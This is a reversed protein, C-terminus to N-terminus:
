GKAERRGLEWLKAWKLFVSYSASVSIIFGFYGDLFGRKVVYTELFKSAPKALLSFLSFEAKDDMLQVSGLSSYRNNREVQDAIGEFSYHLLDTKLHGVKGDANWYEHVSQNKWAGFRKNFLRVVRNPYWGGHRIWQGAYLTKRSVSLAICSDPNRVAFLMENQLDVPVVEDADISLIWDADALGNAFNKQDSFGAWARVEYRTAFERAISETDDTSGSDVVVIEGCFRVSELCARLSRAGNRVIIVAALKM